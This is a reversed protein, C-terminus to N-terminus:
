LLFAFGFLVTVALLALTGLFVLLGLLFRFLWDFLFFRDAKGTRNDVPERKRRAM